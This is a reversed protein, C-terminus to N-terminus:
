GDTSESPAPEPPSPLLAVTYGSLKKIATSAGAGLGVAIIAHRFEPYQAAAAGAIVAAVGCHLVIALLYLFGGPGYPFRWPAGKVNRIAEACSIARVSAAGAIGWLAYEWWM